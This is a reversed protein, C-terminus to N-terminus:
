VSSVSNCIGGYRGLLGLACVGAGILATTRPGPVSSPQPNSTPQIVSSVLTVTPLSSTPIDSVLGNVPQPLGSSNCLPFGFAAVAGVCVPFGNVASIFDLSSGGAGPTTDFSFFTPTASSTAVAAPGGKFTITIAQLDQLEM